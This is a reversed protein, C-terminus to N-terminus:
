FSSFLRGLVQAPDPGPKTASAGTAPAGPRQRVHKPDKQFVPMTRIMEDQQDPPAGRFNSNDVMFAMSECFAIAEQEETEYEAPSLSRRESAYVACDQSEPLYLYIFVAFGHPGRLGVVSALAPGAKKGPIALHPSNISHYLAVVQEKQAPLGRIREDLTFM